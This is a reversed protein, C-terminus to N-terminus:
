GEMMRYSAMADAGIGNEEERAMWAERAQRAKDESGRTIRSKEADEIVDKPSWSNNVANDHGAMTMCAAMFGDDLKEGPRAKGNRLPKGKRKGAAVIQDFFYESYIGLTRDNFNDQFRGVIVGRSGTRTNFGFTNQLTFISSGFVERQYVNGYALQQILFDLCGSGGPPVEPIILANNYHQAIRWAAIATEQSNTFGHWEAVFRGTSLDLVQVYNESGIEDEARQDSDATDVGVAYKKGPEPQFWVDVHPGACNTALKMGDYTVYYQCLPRRVMRKYFKIADKEFFDAGAVLRLAEDL